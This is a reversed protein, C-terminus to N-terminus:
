SGVRAWHQRNITSLVPLVMIIGLVMNQCSSCVGEERTRVIDLIMTSQILNSTSMCQPPRCCISFCQLSSRQEELCRITPSWTCSALLLAYYAPCKQNSLGGAPTLYGSIARRAAM